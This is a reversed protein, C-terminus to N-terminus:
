EDNDVDKYYQDVCYERCFKEDDMMDSHQYQQKGLLQNCNACKPLKEYIREAWAEIYEISQPSFPLTFGMTCGVGIEIEPNIKRWENYIQIGAEVAERPDTFEKGEGLYGYKVAMMDANASDSNGESIEVIFTGDPWQHQRSVFYLM